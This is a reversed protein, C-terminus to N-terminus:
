DESSPRPGPTRSRLDRALAEGRHTLRYVKMRRAGGRIHRVDTTLVGALELRKLVTALSNQKAGLAAAMGAQTFGAPAVDHPGLAGLSSLHLVIRMSLRLTEAPVATGEPVPRPVAPAEERAEPEGPSAAPLQTGEDARAPATAASALAKASEPGAAATSPTAASPGGAAPPTPPAAPAEHVSPLPEALASAEVPASPAPAAELTSTSARPSPAPPEEELEAIERAEERRRARTLVAVLAVGCAAGAIGWPLWMALLGMWSVSSSGPTSVNVWTAASSSNGSSDIVTLIALFHGPTDYTYNLDLGTGQGGDGFTWEIIRYTGSGGSVTGRFDVTLPATGQTPTAELDVRLPAAVVVIKLSASSSSSGESAVLTANYTGPLEYTRSPDAFTPGAGSLNSGDGFSWNYQVDSLDAAGTVTSSFAVYLPATGHSSSATIGVSFAPPSGGLLTPVAFTSPSALSLAVPLVLLVWARPVPLAPGHPVAPKSTASRPGM